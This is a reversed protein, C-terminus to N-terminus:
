PLQVLFVHQFVTTVAAAVVAAHLLATALMRLLAGRTAARRYEFAAVFVLVFLFTALWFPLQGVLGAAYGVTLVVCAALRAGAGRASEGGKGAAERGALRWGGALASRVLLALGLLAIIAGLLGPVIGPVTYPNIGLEELRPMRLSEVLAATGLAVLIISTLFDAKAM